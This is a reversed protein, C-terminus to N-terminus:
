KWTLVIEEMHLSFENNRLTIEKQDCSIVVLFDHPGTEHRWSMRVRHTKANLDNPADIQDIIATGVPKGDVWAKV